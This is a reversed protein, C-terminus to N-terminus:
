ASPQEADPSEPPPAGTDADAEDKFITDHSQAEAMAQAQRQKRREERDAAEQREREERAEIERLTEKDQLGLATLYARMSLVVVDLWHRASNRNGVALSVASDGSLDLTVQRASGAHRAQHELLSIRQKAAQAAGLPGDSGQPWAHQDRRHILHEVIDEGLRAAMTEYDPADRLGPHVETSLRVRGDKELVDLPQQKRQRM